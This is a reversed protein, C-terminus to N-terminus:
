FAGIIYQRYFEISVALINQKEMEGALIIHRKSMKMAFSKGNM